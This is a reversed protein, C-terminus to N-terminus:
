ELAQRLRPVLDGWEPTGGGEPLIKSRRVLVWLFRNALGNALETDTIFRLLEEKTIHGIISIHANTARAPSNKTLIRLNGSDWAQRLIPSLTNGDRANVKLVSAFETEVILLRKDSV